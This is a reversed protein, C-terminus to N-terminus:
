RVVCGVLLPGAGRRAADATQDLIPSPATSALRHGGLIRCRYENAVITNLVRRRRRERAPSWRPRPPVPLRVPSLIWRHFDHPNSDGRGCWFAGRRRRGTPDTFSSSEAICTVSVLASPNFRSYLIM